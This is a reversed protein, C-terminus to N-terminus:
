ALTHIDRRQPSDYRRFPPGRCPSHRISMPPAAVLGAHPSRSRRSPSPGHRKPSNDRRHPSDDRRRPSEGRRRSNDHRRRPSEHDAGRSRPRLPAVTPPHRSDPPTDTLHPPARLRDRSSCFRSRLPFRLAVTDPNTTTSFRENYDRSCLAALSWVQRKLRICDHFKRAYETM